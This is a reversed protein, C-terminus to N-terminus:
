FWRDDSPLREERFYNGSPWQHFDFLGFGGFKVGLILEGTPIVSTVPSSPLYESSFWPKWNM